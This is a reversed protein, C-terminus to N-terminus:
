NKEKMIRAMQRTFDTWSLGLLRLHSIRYTLSNTLKFIFIGFVYLNSTNFCLLQFSLFFCYNFNKNGIRDTCETFINDPTTVRFSWKPMMQYSM